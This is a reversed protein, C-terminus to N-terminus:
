RNLSRSETLIAEKTFATWPLIKCFAPKALFDASVHEIILDDLKYVSMRTMTSM